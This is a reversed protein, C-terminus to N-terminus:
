QGDWKEKSVEEKFLKRYKTMAGGLRMTWKENDLPYM